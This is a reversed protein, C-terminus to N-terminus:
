KYVAVIPADRTNPTVARAITAYSQPSAVLLREFHPIWRLPLALPALFDTQVDCLKLHSPLHFFIGVIIFPMPFM